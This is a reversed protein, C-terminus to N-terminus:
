PSARGGGMRRLIWVCSGAALFITAVGVLTFKPIACLAAMRALPESAGAILQRVLGYNELADFPAALLMAWSLALGSRRWGGGLRSGLRLAALSFWAPYVLLYLTDLGQVFMAAARAQADWSDLIAAAGLETWAFEYSVIGQPAESTQLSEGAVGLWVSLGLSMATLSLLLRPQASEAVWGFPSM